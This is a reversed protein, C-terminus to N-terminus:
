SGSYVRRRAFDAICAAAQEPVAQLVLHPADLEVQEVDCLADHLTAASGTDVLRDARGRIVLSPLEVAGGSRADVRLAERARMALVDSGVGDFPDDEAEIGDDDARHGFASTIAAPLKDPSVYRTAARLLRKLPWQIRAFTSVFVLGALGAPRRRAIQLALPGGFSEAMLVHREAPLREAVYRVLGDYGLVTDPPYEIVEVRGHGRLAHCADRSYRGTGDLGPLLIFCHDAHSM